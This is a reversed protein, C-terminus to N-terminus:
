EDSEDEEGFTATNNIDFIKVPQYWPAVANLMARPPPSAPAVDARAIAVADGNLRCLVVVTGRPMRRDDATSVMNHPIAQGRRLWTEAGPGLHVVPMWPLARQIPVLVSGLTRSEAAAEIAELTHADEIQFAGVDTRRLETLIAGCGLRQGLDHAMSRIYTGSSCDVGFESTGNEYNLIDFARIEVERAEVEPVEGERAYEYLKKGAIKKASYAPPTQLITGVMSNAAEQIAEQSAPLVADPVTEVVGEADYTDSTVGFRITGEYSKEVGMLYESVRTAEGLLVVLIGTAQPDLTGAHGVRRTQFIRRIRNVVDHSTIGAPKDVLLIGHFESASSKKKGM